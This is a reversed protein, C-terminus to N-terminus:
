FDGITDAFVQANSQKGVDGKPGQSPDPKPTAPKNDSAPFLSLLDDADASIADEDDGQLRAIQGKTLGKDIGVNLRTIEKTKGTLDESLAIKDAELTTIQAQFSEIQATLDKVQREATNARDREAKLARKGADSLEPEAPTDAPNEESM